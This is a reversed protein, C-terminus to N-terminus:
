RLRFRRRLAVVGTGLLVLSAPEPVAAGGAAPQFAAVTTSGNIGAIGLIGGTFNSANTRIVMVQTVSNPGILPDFNFGVTGGAANRDASAPFAGAAGGGGPDVYFVDTAWGTFDSMFLRSVLADANSDVGIQYLFDLLVGPGPDRDFVASRYLGHLAPSVSWPLPVNGTSAVFPGPCADCAGGSPVPSLTQGPNIPTAYSPHAIALLAVLAGVLLVLKKFKVLCCRAPSLYRGVALHRQLDQALTTDTM